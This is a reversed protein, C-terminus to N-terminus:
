RKNRNENSKLQPKNAIMATINGWNAMSNNDVETHKDEHDSKSTSSFSRSISRNLKSPTPFNTNKSITKSTSDVSVTQKFEHTPKIAIPKAKSSKAPPPPPPPAKTPVSKKPPLPSPCDSSGSSDRKSNFSRTHDFSFKVNLEDEPPPPPFKEEEGSYNPEYYSTTNSNTEKYYDDFPSSIPKEDRMYQSNIQQVGQPKRFTLPNSPMQEDSDHNFSAKAPSTDYDLDDEDEDSADIEESTPLHQPVKQQFRSSFKNKQKDFPLLNSMVECTAVDEVDDNVNLHTLYTIPKKNTAKSRSDAFEDYEEASSIELADYDDEGTDDNNFCVNEISKVWEEKDSKDAARFQFISQCYFSNSYPTIKHHHQILNFLLM